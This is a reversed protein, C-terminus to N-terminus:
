LNTKRDGGHYVTIYFIYIRHHLFILIWLLSEIEIIKFKDLKIYNIIDIIFYM